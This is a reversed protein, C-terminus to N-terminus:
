ADTSTMPSDPAGSDRVPPQETPGGLQEVPLTPGDPLVTVTKYGADFEVHSIRVDRSAPGEPFPGRYVVLELLLDAPNIGQPEDRRLELREGGRVACVASVVLQEREGPRQLKRVSWDDCRVTSTPVPPLCLPAPALKDCPLPVPRTWNSESTTESAGIPMESARAAPVAGAVIVGTIAVV